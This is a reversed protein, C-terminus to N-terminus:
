IITFLALILYAELMAFLMKKQQKTWIRIKV